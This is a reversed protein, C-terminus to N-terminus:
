ARRPAAPCLVGMFLPRAYLDTVNGITAEPAWRKISASANIMGSIMQAAIAPDVMRVSGDVMGDVVVSAFHESLRNLTQITQEATAEPLGSRATIRLLPGDGSLQYKVLAAAAASLKQWGSGCHEAASQARRIVDFSRSFCAVILDDKNDNHHYFSGKTVKLAASIREVSAGRFGQENILRTAVRLFADPSVDEGSVATTLDPLVPPAWKASQGGLGHLFIDSAHRAARAYGGVEYRKIWVRTWQTVAFLMHARANRDSRNLGLKSDSGILGRVRRFMQAYVTAVDPRTASLTNVESFNIFEPRAGTEVDALLRFYGTVFAAIRAEPTRAKDADALLADFVDVSRLVCALALDEKKRYYYTVSNTALGVSTAVDSLTTSRIGRRNFLRAAADLIAERKELFRRTQGEDITPMDSM